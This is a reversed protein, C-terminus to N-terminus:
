YFMFFIVRTVDCVDYWLCWCIAPQLLRLVTGYCMVDDDRRLCATMAIVVVGYDDDCRLWLVVIMVVICDDCYDYDYWFGWLAMLEGCCNCYMMCMVDDCWSEMILLLLLFHRRTKEGVDSVGKGGGRERDGWKVKSFM